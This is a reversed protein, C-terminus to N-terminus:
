DNRVDDFHWPLDLFTLVFRFVSLSPVRAILSTYDSLSVPTVLSWMEVLTVV